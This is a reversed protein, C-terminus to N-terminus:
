EPTPLIEQLLSLSGVATYQGLFNVAWPSVFLWDHSLSKWKWKKMYDSYPNFSIM